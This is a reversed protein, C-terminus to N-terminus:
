RDIFVLSSLGQPVAFAFCTARSVALVADVALGAFFDANMGGIIKSSMSTKAASLLFDSRILPSHAPM